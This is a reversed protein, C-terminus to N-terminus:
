EADIINRLEDFQLISDFYIDKARYTCDKYKQENKQKSFIAIIRKQPSLTVTRIDERLTTNPYYYNGDRVFGICATVTGVIKETILISKTFDYDGVMKAVKHINMVQPLVSLKMETTGNKHFSFVTPSLQGRLCLNYFDSSKIRNSLLNVGTLHLYHRPLFLAEFYRLEKGDNFVYLLNKNELNSYFHKACNSLVRIAEEKKM